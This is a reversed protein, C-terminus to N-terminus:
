AGASIQQRCLSGGIAYALEAPESIDWLAFDARLGPLLAGRDTLGLARAAHRTVGLLAELPTLGFLTCAMNMMLRLSLAPSSGPNCDSAVAMPVGAARFAEIPPRRTERLAYFAGPLLVAVTGAAAMAEVADASVYELHDASLAGMAAALKAGGMDSIQGAHIKIALGHRRAADFVAHTEQPSFAIHECFCDVATALGGRAVAPIMENCILSVYGARDQAFEPPIGHAGLFTTTIDVPAEEGLRRAVKLMKIESELNLGYGSKIELTTVGDMIFHDLRRRASRYLEEEDADRTARVTSLIGGGQAAIAAYTEGNLRREFEGIRDGGYVLHTHCDILGPTMWLGDCSRREGDLCAPLDALRGVWLIRGARVAVAGDRVVGWDTSHALTILHAGQYVLTREPHAM